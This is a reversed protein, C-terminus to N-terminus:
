EFDGVESEYDFDDNESLEPYYDWLREEQEPTLPEAPVDSIAECKKIQSWLTPTIRLTYGCCSPCLWETMPLEPVAFAAMLSMIVGGHTVIAASRTGTKIMGDVTKIFCDCVRTAFAKNSEGNLPAADEGGALWESFEKYPKLEDATHGEFEGFDCEDFDRMEIAHKDPYLIEATQRCRKLTSTFVVDVEPYDFETKMKELQELGEPCLEEDTHGIYRGELNGRTLAHRIFHVTYTKM